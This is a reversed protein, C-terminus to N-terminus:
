CRRWATDRRAAELLAAVVAISLGVVTDFDGGVLAAFDAAEDQIGYGGAKGRWADSDLFRARQEATLADFRVRATAVREWRSGDDPHTRVCHATHVLHERGGLADLMAAADDRDRPKGLERGDIEVVTDVGLVFGAAGAVQAGIAKARARLLAREIPAGEGEPEPGPPVSVHELGAERLLRRRRPSTSALYLVVDCRAPM